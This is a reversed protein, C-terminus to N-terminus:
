AAPNPLRLSMRKVLELFSQWGQARKVLKEEVIIPNALLNKVRYLYIREFTREDLLGQAIMAECHEFLGMYAEVAAWDETSSPGAAQAGAWPGGPRVKRHVEDHRAFQDRLALWFQARVIRRSLDLSRAAYVLALLAIVAAVTQLQDSTSV